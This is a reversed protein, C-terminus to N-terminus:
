PKWCSPKGPPTYRPWAAALFGYRQHRPLLTYTFALDSVNQTLYQALNHNIKMAGWRDFDLLMWGKEQPEKYPLPMQPPSDDLQRPTHLLQTQPLHHDPPLSLCSSLAAPRPEQEWSQFSNSLVHRLPGKETACSSPTTTQRPPNSGWRSEGQQGMGAAKREQRRVDLGEGPEKALASHRNKHGPEPKGTKCDGGGGDALGVLAVVAAPAVLLLARQLLVLLPAVVVQLTQVSFRLGQGALLTLATPHGPRPPRLGATGDPSM